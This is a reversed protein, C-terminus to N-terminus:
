RDTNLPGLGRERPDPDASVSTNPAGSQEDTEELERWATAAALFLPVLAAYIAFTIEGGSQSQFKLHFGIVGTLTPAWVISGVKLQFAVLAWALFLCRRLAKSSFFISSGGIAFMAMLGWFCIHAIVENSEPSGGTANVILRFGLQPIAWGSVAWLVSNAAIAFALIPAAKSVQKASKLLWKSTADGDKSEGDPELVDEFARRTEYEERLRKYREPYADKKIHALADELQSISYQAYNPETM